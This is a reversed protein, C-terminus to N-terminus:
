CIDDEVFVFFSLWISKQHLRESIVVNCFYKSISSILYFLDGNCKTCNFIGGKVLDNM